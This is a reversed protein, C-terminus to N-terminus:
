ATRLTPTGAVGGHPSAKVLQGGQELLVRADLNANSNRHKRTLTHTPTHVHAFDTRLTNTTHM